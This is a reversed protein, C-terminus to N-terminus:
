IPKSYSNLNKLKLSGLGLQCYGAGSQPAPIKNYFAYILPTGKYSIKITYKSDKSLDFKTIYKTPHNVKSSFNKNGIFSHKMNVMKSSYGLQSMTSYAILEKMDVSILALSGGIFCTLGGILSIFILGYYSYSILISIRILIYVGATVM